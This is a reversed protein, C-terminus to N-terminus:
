RCGGMEFPLDLEKFITGRTIATEIPLPQTWRQMPVYSMALPCNGSDPCFSNDPQIVEPPNGAKAGRDMWVPMGTGMGSDMNVANGMNGASDMNGANGMNEMNATNATNAMNAMNGMNGMNAMNGMNGVSGNGYCQWAQWAPMSMSSDYGSYDPMGTYQRNYCSM